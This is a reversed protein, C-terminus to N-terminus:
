TYSNNGIFEQCHDIECKKYEKNYKDALFYNENCFDCFQSFQQNCSNCKKNEGIECKKLCEHNNLFYGEKCKQCFLCFSINDIIKFDEENKAAVQVSIIKSKNIQYNRCKPERM